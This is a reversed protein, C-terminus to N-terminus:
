GPRPRPFTTSRTAAHRSDNPGGLTEDYHNPHIRRFNPHPYNRALYPTLCEEYSYRIKEYRPPTKNTEHDYRPQLQCFHQMPHIGPALRRQRIEDRESSPIHSPNADVRLYPCEVSKTDPAFRKTDSFHRIQRATTAPGYTVCTDFLHRLATMQPSSPSQRSEDPRYHPFACLFAATSALLIVIQSNAGPTTRRPQTGYEVQRLKAHKRMM